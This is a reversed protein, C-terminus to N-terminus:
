KNIVSQLLNAWQKIPNLETPYTQLETTKKQVQEYKSAQLRVHRNDNLITGFSKIITENNNM